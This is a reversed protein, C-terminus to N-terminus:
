EPQSQIDLATPETQGVGNRQRRYNSLHTYIAGRARSIGGLPRHEPLARWPNFALHECHQQAAATAVRQVPISIEAVPMFPSQTESWEVSADEIPMSRADRQLQLAFEFCAPATELDAALRTALFNEDDTDLSRRARQRCPRASYKVARGDGFRYPVMSFWRIALLDTHQVLMKRVILFARIHSDFPNFFFRLAHDNAIAIFGEAYTRVDPFLFVPHSVLLLDHSHAPGSDTLLKDGPVELLKIAMGRVDAVTDPQPDANNSLRIIASYSAGPQFLGVQFAPDLDNLVRFQARVCGHQKPHAGRRTLREGDRADIHTKFQAIVAAIHTAEDGPVREEGLAPAADRACGALWAATAVLLITAATAQRPRRRTPRM